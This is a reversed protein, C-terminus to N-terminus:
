IHKRWEYSASDEEPTLSSILIDAQKLQERLYDVERQLEKIVAGQHEIQEGESFFEFAITM